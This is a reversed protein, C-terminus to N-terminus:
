GRNGGKLNSIPRTLRRVDKITSGVFSLFCASFLVLEIGAIWHNPEEFCVRRDRLFTWFMYLLWGTVILGILDLLLERFARIFRRLYNNM